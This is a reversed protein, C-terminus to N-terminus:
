DDPNHPVKLHINQCVKPCDLHNKVFKMSCRGGVMEEEGDDGDDGHQLSEQRVHQLLLTAMNDGDGAEGPLGPSVLQYDIRDSSIMNQCLHAM